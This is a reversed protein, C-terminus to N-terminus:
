YKSYYLGILPGSNLEGCVMISMNYLTDYRVMLEFTSKENEVPINREEPVVNIHYPFSPNTGNLQLSVSLNISTSGRLESSSTFNVIHVATNIFVFM